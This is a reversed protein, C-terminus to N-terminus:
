CPTPSPVVVPVLYGCDRGEAHSPDLEGWVSRQHSQLHSMFQTRHVSINIKIIEVSHCFNMKILVCAAAETQAHCGAVRASDEMELDGTFGDGSRRNLYVGRTM